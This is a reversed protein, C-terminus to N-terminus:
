GVAGIKEYGKKEKILSIFSDYSVPAKILVMYYAWSLNHFISVSELRKDVVSPRSRIFGPIQPLVAFFLRIWSWVSFKIGARAPSSM